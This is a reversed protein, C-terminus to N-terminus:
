KSTVLVKAKGTYGSLVLSFNNNVPVIHVLYNSTGPVTDLSKRFITDPLLNTTILYFTGKGASSETVNVNVNVTDKSFATVSNRSYNSQTNEVDIDASVTDNKVSVSINEVSSKTSQTTNDNCSIFTFTVIAFVIIVSLCYVKKM